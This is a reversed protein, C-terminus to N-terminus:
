ISLGISEPAKKYLEVRSLDDPVVLKAQMGTEFVDTAQNMRVVPFSMNEKAQIERMLHLPHTLEGGQEIIIAGPGGRDFMVGFYLVDLYKIVLLDMRTLAKLQDMNAGVDKIVKFCGEARGPLLPDLKSAMPYRVYKVPKVEAHNLDRTVKVAVMEGDTFVRTAKSIKVVPIHCEIAVKATHSGVSGNEIIFAKPFVALQMIEPLYEVVVIDDPKIGIKRDNLVKALREDGLREVVKILGEAKGPAIPAIDFFFDDIQQAPTDFLILSLIHRSEPIGNVGTKVKGWLERAAQIDKLNVKEIFEEIHKLTGKKELEPLQVSASHLLSAAWRGFAQLESLDKAKQYKEHMFSALASELREINIDTVFLTLRNESSLQSKGDDLTKRIDQRTESYEMMAEIYDSSQFATVFRRYKQILDPFAEQFAESWLFEIKKLDELQAVVPRYIKSLWFIVGRCLEIAKQYGPYNEELERLIERALDLNYSALTNHYGDRLELCKRKLPKPCITTIEEFEDHLIHWDTGLLFAGPLKKYVQEIFSRKAAQLDRDPTYEAAILLAKNFAMIAHDADVGRLAKDFLAPSNKYFAIKLERYGDAKMLSLIPEFAKEIVEEHEVQSVDFSQKNSLASFLAKLLYPQIHSPVKKTLGLGVLMDLLDTKITGKELINMIGQEVVEHLWPYEELHLLPLAFDELDSFTCTELLSHDSLLQTMRWQLPPLLWPFEERKALLKLAVTGLSRLSCRQFGEGEELLRIIREKVAESHLYSNKKSQTLLPLGFYLIDGFDSEGFREGERLLRDIYILFAEKLISNHAIKEWLSPLNLSLSRFNAEKMGIGTSLLHVLKARIVNELWPITNSEELISLAHTFNFLTIEKMRLPQGPYQPAFTSIVREKLAQLVESEEPAQLAERETGGSKFCPLIYQYFEFLSIPAMDEQKLLDLIMSKVEWLGEQDLQSFLTILSGYLDRWSYDLTLKEKIMEMLDDLDQQLENDVIDMELHPFSISRSKANALRPILGSLQSVPLARQLLLAGVEEVEKPLFLTEIVRLLYRDKPTFEKLGFTKPDFKFDREKSPIPRVQLIYFAGRYLSWEIDFKCYEYERMTSFSHDVTVGIEALRMIQERSLAPVEQLELPVPTVEVGGEDRYAGRFAFEKKRVDIEIQERDRPDVKYIDSNVLGSVVGEGLGYGANIWIKEERSGGPNGTFMVGSVEARIMAQVVVAVKIEFPNMSHRRRYLFGRVSWISAWCRKIKDFLSEEGMVNLFTDYQGAFSADSLDEVTASSRVAVGIERHFQSRLAHYHQLIKERLDPPISESTIRTQLAQSFEQVMLSDEPDLKSFRQAIELHLEMMEVFRRYVNTTICFGPPVVIGTKIMAGLNAGKNGALDHDERSLAHLDVVEPDHGQPIRGETKGREM